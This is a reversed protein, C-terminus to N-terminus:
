LITYKWQELAQQFENPIPKNQVKIKCRENKEKEGKMCKDKEMREAMNTQLEM